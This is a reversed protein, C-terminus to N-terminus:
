NNGNDLGQKAFWDVLQPLLDSLTTGAPRDRYLSVLFSQFQPYRPFEGRGEMQLLTLREFAACDSPPLTDCAYLPILGWNLYEEFLLVPTDYESNALNSNFLAMNPGIARVIDQKIREAAPNISGHNLETFLIYARGFNRAATPPSADSDVAFDVHLILERFDGDAVADQHQWGKVLPSVIIRVHDYPKVTPFEHRLWAVMGQMDAETEYFRRAETYTQRAVASRYFDGFHSRAAFRELEQALPAFSDSTGRIQSYQPLRTFRNDPGVEYASSNIKPEMHNAIDQALMVELKTVVPDEQWARFYNMVARHYPTDRAILGENSQGTPTLAMVIYFLEHVPPTEVTVKGELQDRLETPFCAGPINEAAMPAICPESAQASAGAVDVMLLAPIITIILKISM